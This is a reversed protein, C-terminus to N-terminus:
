VIGASARSSARTTNRRRPRRREGLQPAVARRPRGSGLTVHPVIGATSPDRSVTRDADREDRGARARKAAASAPVARSHAIGADAVETVSEPAMSPLMATLGPSVTRAPYAMAM